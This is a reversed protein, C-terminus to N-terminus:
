PARSRPPSAPAPRYRSQSGARGGARARRVAAAAARPSVRTRDGPPTAPYARGPPFVRRASGPRAPAPCSRARLFKPSAASARRIATASRRCRPSTRGPPRRSDPAHTAARRPPRRPKPVPTAARRSPPRSDRRPHRRADPLTGLRPPTLPRPDPPDGPNQRARRRADSPDGPDQTAKEVRTPRTASIRALTDGRPPDRESRCARPDAHAPCTAPRARRQGKM